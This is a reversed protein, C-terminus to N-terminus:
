RKCHEITAHMKTRLNKWLDEDWDANRLGKAYVGIARKVIALFETANITLNPIDFLDGDRRIRWGGTTEGQHLIGCRVSKYFESAYPQFPAFATERQLFYCLAVEGRSRTARKRVVPRCPDEIYSMPIRGSTDPWGRYFSELTEILLCAAAMMLFGHKQPATRLPDIYRESLREQIFSALGARDKACEMGRYCGITVSSSLKVESLDFAESIASIM